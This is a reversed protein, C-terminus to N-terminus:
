LTFFLAILPHDKMNALVTFRFAFEHYFLYLDPIMLGRFLDRLWISECQSRIVPVFAEPQNLDLSRLCKRTSFKIEM